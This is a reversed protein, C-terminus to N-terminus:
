RCASRETEGAPKGTERFHAHNGALNPPAGMIRTIGAFMMQSHSTPKIPTHFEIQIDDQTPITRHNDQPPHHHIGSPTSTKQKGEQFTFSNVTPATRVQWLEDAAAALERPSSDVHRLLLIRIEQPLRRLFHGTFMFDPKYGAPMLALLNNMLSSPKEDHSFNINM